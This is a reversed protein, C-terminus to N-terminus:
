KEGRDRSLWSDQFAEELLAAASKFVSPRSVCLGVWRPAFPARHLNQLQCLFCAVPLCHEGAPTPPPSPIRAM